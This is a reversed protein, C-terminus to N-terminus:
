RESYRPDIAAAQRFNAEAAEAQGLQTLTCGLTYYALASTKDLAIAREADARAASYENMRLHAVALCRFVAASASFRLAAPTLIDAAMRAENHKLACTAAAIPIQLDAPDGAVAQRFFNSAAQPSGDKLAEEGRKLLEASGGQSISIASVPIVAPTRAEAIKTPDTALEVAAKRRAAAERARRYSTGYAENSPAAKAAREYYAVAEEPRGNVDLTLGVAYQVDPNEAHFKLAEQAQALAAQPQHTSLMVVTMLLRADCNGPDRALIGQLLEVCGKSDKQQWRQHAALLEAHERKEDVAAHPASPAAPATQDGHVMHGQYTTSDLGSPLACGAMSCLGLIPWTRVLRHRLLGARPVISGILLWVLFVLLISIM